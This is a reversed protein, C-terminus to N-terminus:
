EDMWDEGGGRWGGPLACCQIIKKNTKKTGEGCKKRMQLYYYRSYNIVAFGGAPRDVPDAESARNGFCRIDDNYDYNTCDGDFDFRYKITIASRDRAAGQCM